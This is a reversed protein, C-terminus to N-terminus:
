LAFEDKRSHSGVDAIRGFLIHKPCIALGRISNWGFPLGVCPQEAGATVTYCVTGEDGCSYCEYTAFIKGKAQQIM